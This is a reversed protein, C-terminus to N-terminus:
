TRQDGSPGNPCIYIMVWRKLYLLLNLSPYHQGKGWQPAGVSTPRVALICVNGMSDAMTLCFM